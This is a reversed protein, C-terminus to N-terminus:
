LKASPVFVYANKMTPNSFFSKMGHILVEDCWNTTATPMFEKMIPIFTCRVTYKWTLIPTHSDNESKHMELLANAQRSYCGVINNFANSLLMIAIQNDIGDVLICVTHSSLNILMEWQFQHCNDSNKKKGENMWEKWITITNASKTNSCIAYPIKMLPM